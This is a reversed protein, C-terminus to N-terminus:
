CSQDTKTEKDHNDGNPFTVTLPYLGEFMPNEFPDTGGGWSALASKIYARIDSRTAEAPVDKDKIKLLIKM